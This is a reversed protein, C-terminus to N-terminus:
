VRAGGAYSSTLHAIEAAQRMVAVDHVRIGRAGGLVAATVAAATGGIRRDVPAGTLAGIFSKRSPGVMVPLGTEVLEGVKAVLEVCQEATKAFGVGPDIWIKDRAVGASEARAVADLLEARVETLLNDYAVGQQMDEPLKRSHMIVLEVGTAAAVEALGDGHRLTSVDNIMGAGADIAARAVAPKVTDISILADTREFLGRVVPLVRELEEGESVGRSGPRTSEGGVDVIDAGQDVLALGHAIAADPDLFLGGDSFSDPTVNVIGMVVPRDMQHEFAVAWGYVASKIFVFFFFSIL